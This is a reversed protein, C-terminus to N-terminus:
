LLGFVLLGGLAAVTFKSISSERGAASASKTASPASSTGTSKPSAGTTSAGATTAAKSPLLSYTVGFSYEDAPNDTVTQPGDSATVVKTFNKDQATWTTAIVGTASPNLSATEVKEPSVFCYDDLATYAETDLTDELCLSWYFTDQLTTINCYNTCGNDIEFIKSSGCCTKMADQIQKNSQVNGILCTNAFTTNSLTEVIPCAM